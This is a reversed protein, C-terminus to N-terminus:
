NFTVLSFCEDGLIRFDLVDRTKCNMELTRTRTERGPPVDNKGKRDLSDRM